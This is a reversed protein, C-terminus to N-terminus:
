PLISLRGQCERRGGPVPWGLMIRPAGMVLETREPSAGSLPSARTPSSGEAQNGSSGWALPPLRVMPVGDSEGTFYNLISRCSSLSFRWPELPTVPLRVNGCAGAATAGSERAPQVGTRGPRASLPGGKPKALSGEGVRRCLHGGGGGLTRLQAPEEGADGKGRLAASPEAAAGHSAREAQPRAENATPWEDCIQAASSSLHDQWLQVDPRVM